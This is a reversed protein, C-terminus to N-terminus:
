QEFTDDNSIFTDDDEVDNYTAVNESGDTTTTQSTDTTEEQITNTTEPEEIVTNSIVPEQPTPNEIVEPPTTSEPVQTTPSEVVPQEQIPTTSDYSERYSKPVSGHESCYETPNTGNLYYEIYTNKCGTSALMGTDSCIEASVVDSPINFQKGPLKSHISKMVNSWIQGSPNKNNFNITESQDFGFWTAGTYYSTFGCLWRDYDDNTTGTKACVDIGNIKCYTATGKQGNVPQMLLSKLIYAVEPSFVKKKNQKSQIIIKEESNQVKTYFTPEIYIGDNAITEYAAAIELPSMGKDIGGLALNLNNDRKTLSTIGMKEMYSISTKPTIMELMKVFPINQSTEVAQRVTIEGRYNNYDTPSYGEPSGDNFTTEEDLIITSPTIIKKDIGPVLVAIPKISSGTQRYAQTARNFGRPTKEGIGGICGVVQGNENNIVVMAGQSTVTSDKASKIKYKSKNFEKQMTNQITSDQTSYITLGAMEFYNMAFSESVNYKETFDEILENIMADTHYTYNGSSESKEIKGEKFKLGTDIKAKAENYEEQNIYGHELMKSLVANSRAKIKEDVDKKTFPNYSNPSNNIGALFACEALDLESVDKNFYYKAGLSVGYINPGTYIVNMYSELIEDKTLVQELSAARFWETVKRSVKTSNDGSINKVLQQTISSGGFSSSGLHRIYNFIAHATRPLDVGGHSYFRQDEIAVYANKLYDPIEDLSVKEKLKGDGIQAIINGDIDYVISPTNKILDIAFKQWRVISIATKIALLILLIFIILLIKKLSIIKKKISKDIKFTDKNRKEEKNKKIDKLREKKTM